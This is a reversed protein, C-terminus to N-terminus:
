NCYSNLLDYLGSLDTSVEKLYGEKADLDAQLADRQSQVSSYMSNLNNFEAAKQDYGGQLTDYEGQLQGLEAELASIQSQYGMLLVGSVAGAVILGLVFVSVTKASM